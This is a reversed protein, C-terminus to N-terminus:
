KPTLQELMKKADDAGPGDAKGLYDKLLRIASDKDGKEVLLHAMLLIPDAKGPALGVAHKADRLADDLQHRAANVQARMLYPA